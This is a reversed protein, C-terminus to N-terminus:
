QKQFKARRATGYGVRGRNDGVVVLASFSFRRGGKVVKAVRNIHVLKDILGDNDDVEEKTRNNSRGRGRSRDDSNKNRTTGTNM